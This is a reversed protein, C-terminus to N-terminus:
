AREEKMRSGTIVAAALAAISAISFTWGPGLEGKHKGSVTLLVETASLRASYNSSTAPSWGRAYLFRGANIIAQSLQERSM